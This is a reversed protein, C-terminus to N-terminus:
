RILGDSLACRYDDLTYFARASTDNPIAKIIAKDSTVLRLPRRDVSHGIGASFCIDIDWLFNGRNKKTLDVGASIVKELLQSYLNIPARFRQLLWDAKAAIEHDSETSNSNIAARLVHMKAFLLLASESTVFDLAQRRLDPERQWADWATEEPFFASIVYERIDQVFQEEATRVLDSIAALDCRILALAPDSPDEGIRTAIGRILDQAELLSDPVVDYLVKCVQVESSPWLAIVDEDDDDKRSCHECVAVVSALASRYSSHSPDSLRALLELLVTTSALAYVGRSNEQARLKRIRQRVTEVPSTAVLQRYANTDFIVLFQVSSPFM